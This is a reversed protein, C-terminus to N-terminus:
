KHFLEKKFIKKELGYSGAGFVILVLMAAFYIVALEGGNATPNIGRPIHVKVFAGIMVIAGLLASISTFLGLVILAGGFFEVVGAFGMVSFLEVPKAGFLKSAGH